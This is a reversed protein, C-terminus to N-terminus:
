SNRHQTHRTTKGAFYAEIQRVAEIAAAVRQDYSLEDIPEPNAASLHAEQETGTQESTETSPHIDSPSSPRNLDTM